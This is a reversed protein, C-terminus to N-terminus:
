VPTFITIGKGLTEGEKHLLTSCLPNHHQQIKVHDYCHDTRRSVWFIARQEGTRLLTINM